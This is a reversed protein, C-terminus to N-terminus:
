NKMKNKIERQNKKSWIENNQINIKWLVIIKMKMNQIKDKLIWIIWLKLCIWKILIRKVFLNNKKLNKNIIQNM